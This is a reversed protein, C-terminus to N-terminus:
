CKEHTITEQRKVWDKILIIFLEFDDLRKKFLGYIFENKVDKIHLSQKISEILKNAQILLIAPQSFISGDWKNPFATPTKLNGAGPM